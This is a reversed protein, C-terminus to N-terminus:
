GKVTNIDLINTIREGTKGDGYYNNKYCEYNIITNNVKNIIDDKDPSALINCNGELTEIWGTNRLIVVSPVKLWFAEKHLGGSDTVIKVANKAFYIMDIYGLPEVFHINKYSAYCEVSKRIRPHIPFLVPHELTELAQVISDLSKLDDTNEPRHITALYYHDNLM